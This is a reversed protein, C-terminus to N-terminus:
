DFRGGGGLGWGMKELGAAARAAAPGTGTADVRGSSGVGCACAATLTPTGATARRGGADCAPRPSYETLTRSDSVGSVRRRAGVRGGGSCGSECRM